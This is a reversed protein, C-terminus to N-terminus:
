GARNMLQPNEICPMDKTTTLLPTRCTCLDSTPRPRATSSLCDACHQWTCAAPLVQKWDAEENGRWRSRPWPHDHHRRTLAGATLIRMISIGGEASAELVTDTGGARWLGASANRCWASCCCADSVRRWSSAYAVTYHLGRHCRYRHTTTIPVKQCAYACCWV